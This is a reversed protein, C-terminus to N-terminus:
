GPTTTFAFRWAVMGTVDPEFRWRRIRETMCRLTIEDGLTEDGVQIANVRGNAVHWEVEVHGSLDPDFELTSEYCQVLQGVRGTVAPAVAEAEGQELDIFVRSDAAAAQVPGRVVPIEAVADAGTDEPEPAVDPGEEMDSGSPTNTTGDIALSVDPAEQTSQSDGGGSACGLLTFLLLACFLILGPRLSM